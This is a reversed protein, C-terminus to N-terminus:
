VLTMMSQQLSARHKRMIAQTFGVTTNISTVVHWVYQGQSLPQAIFVHAQSTLMMSELGPSIELADQAQELARLIDSQYADSAAAADSSTLPSVSALAMGSDRDIVSTHVCEPIERTVQHLLEFLSM